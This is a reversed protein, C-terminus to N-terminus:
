LEIFDQCSLNKVNAVVHLTKNLEDDSESLPSSAALPHQLEKNENSCDLSNSLSRAATASRDKTQSVVSAELSLFFIMDCDDPAESIIRYISRDRATWSASLAVALNM